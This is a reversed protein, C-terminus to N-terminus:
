VGHHMVVLMMIVVVRSLCVGVVVLV